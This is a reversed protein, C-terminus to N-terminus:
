PHDLDLNMKEDTNEFTEYDSEKMGQETECDFDETEELEEDRLEKKMEVDKPEIRSKFQDAHVAM